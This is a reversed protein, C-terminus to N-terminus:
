GIEEYSITLTLNTNASAIARILDGELLYIYTEKTGIMLTSSGPITINRAIYYDVSSRQISVSIDAPTATTINSCFISNVKFVKNSAAANTLATGVNTTPAYYVTNGVISNAYRLNPNTM